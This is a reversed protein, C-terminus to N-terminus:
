PRRQDVEFLAVFIYIDVAWTNIGKIIIIIIIIIIMIIIIITSTTTATVHFSIVKQLCFIIISNLDNSSVVYNNPKTQTKHCILCQLNNLTLEM